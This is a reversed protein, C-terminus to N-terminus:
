AEEMSVRRQLWEQVQRQIGAQEEEWGWIKELKLETQKFYERLKGM